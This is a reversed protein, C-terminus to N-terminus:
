SMSSNWVWTCLFNAASPISEIPNASTAQWSMSISLTGPPTDANLSLSKFFDENRPLNILVKTFQLFNKAWSVFSPDSDGLISSSPPWSNVSHSLYAFQLTTSTNISNAIEPVTNFFIFCHHFIILSISFRHSNQKQPIVDNFLYGIIFSSFFVNSVKAFAM